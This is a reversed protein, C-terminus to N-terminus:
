NELHVRAQRVYQSPIFYGEGKM